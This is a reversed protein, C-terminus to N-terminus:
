LPIPTIYVIIPTPTPTPTATPTPTPSITPTPTPSVISPYIVGDVYWVNSIKELTTYTGTYTLFTDNDYYLKINNATSASVSSLFALALFVVLLSLIIKKKQSKPSKM